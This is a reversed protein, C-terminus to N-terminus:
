MHLANCLLDVSMTYQLAAFAYLAITANCHRSTHQLACNKKSIVQKSCHWTMLHLCIDLCRSSGHRNCDTAHMDWISTSYINDSTWLLFIPVVDMPFSSEM